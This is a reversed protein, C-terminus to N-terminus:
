FKWDWNKLLKKVEAWEQLDQYEPDNIIMLVTEVLYVANLVGLQEVLEESKEKPTM